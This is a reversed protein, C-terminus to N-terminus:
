CVKSLMVDKRRTSIEYFPYLTGVIVMKSTSQSALGRSSCVLMKDLFFFCSNKITLAFVLSYSDRDSTRTLFAVVLVKDLELDDTIFISFFCHHSKQELVTTFVRLVITCFPVLLCLDPFPAILFLDWEM